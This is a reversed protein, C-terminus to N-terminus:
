YHGSIFPSGEGFYFDTGGGDVVALALRVLHPVLDGSASTLWFVSQENEYCVWGM